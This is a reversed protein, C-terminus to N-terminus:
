DLFRRWWRLTEEHSSDHFECHPACEYLYPKLIHALERYEPLNRGQTLDGAEPWKGLTVIARESELEQVVTTPSSLQARLGAGGGLKGLVPEGLFNLWHVGDVRSGLTTSGHAVDMGPHRFATEHIGKLSATFPNPSYFALGAHGSSVPLLSALETALERMREPGREELYETPWSFSVLSVEDAARTRTRWPLRAWYFFGYGSVGTDSNSLEVTREYQNKVYRHIAQPDEMDEFFRAGGPSSLAARVREWGSASLPYEEDGLSYESFTAPGASLARLYMDLARNVQAALDHHDCPLHLVLRIVERRVLHEGEPGSAYLRVRPYHETM